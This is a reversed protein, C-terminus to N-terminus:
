CTTFGSNPLHGLMRHAATSGSLRSNAPKNGSRIAPFFPKLIIAHVTLLKENVPSLFSLLKLAVNFSREKDIVSLPKAM